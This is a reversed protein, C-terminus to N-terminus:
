NDSWSQCIIGCCFAASLLVDLMVVRSCKGDAKKRGECNSSCDGIASGEIGNLKEEWGGGGITVFV